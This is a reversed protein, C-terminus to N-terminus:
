GASGPTEPAGDAAEGATPADALPVNGGSTDTGKEDSAPKPIPPVDYLRATTPPLKFAPGFIPHSLWASPITQKEGTAKNVAEVHLPLPRKSAPATKKTAM